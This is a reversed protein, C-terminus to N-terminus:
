RHVHCGTFLQASEHLHRSMRCLVVQVLILTIVVMAAHVEAIEIRVLAVPMLPM